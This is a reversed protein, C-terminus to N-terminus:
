LFDFYGGVVSQLGFSIAHSQGPVSNVLQASLIPGLGLFVHPAVHFLLPAYLTIPVISGSTDIGAIHLTDRAYGLSALGWLSLLDTLRLNYGARAGLSVETFTAASSALVQMVSTTGSSIGIFGGVSFNPSLFYDGAPRFTYSTTGFQGQSTHVVDLQLEASVALQGQEGFGGTQARGAPAPAPETASAPHALMLTAMAAAAALTALRTMHAEM